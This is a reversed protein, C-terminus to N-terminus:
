HRFRSFRAKAVLDLGQNATDGATSHHGVALNRSQKSCRAFGLGDSEHGVVSIRFQGPLSYYVPIASHSWPKRAAPHCM